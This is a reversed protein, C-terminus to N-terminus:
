VNYSIEHISKLPLPAEELSRLRKEMVLLGWWRGMKFGTNRYVGVETFGFKKHLEESSKHEYTILAYVTYYGQDKLLEFLKHYLATAIGQRHANEDIYVSCECDWDYAAREKFRAAYAYGLIIGEKEYVLWPFHQLVNEMRKRFVEIPVPDYEFTIATKLIYPEYIRYIAPADELTAMRINIESM